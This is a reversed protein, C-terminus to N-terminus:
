IYKSKETQNIDNLMIGESNIWTTVLLLIEKKRMTSNYAMTYRYVVDENM